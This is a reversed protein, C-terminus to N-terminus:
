KQISSSEQFRFQLPVLQASAAPERLPRCVWLSPRPPRPPGLCTRKFKWTCWLIAACWLSWTCPRARAPTSMICLSCPHVHPAFMCFLGHCFFVAAKFPARAVHISYPRCAGKHGSAQEPACVADAGLEPCAMLNRRLSPTPHMRTCRRLIWDTCNYSM